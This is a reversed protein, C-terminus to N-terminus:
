TSREHMAYRLGDSITEPPKWGLMARAKAADVCLSGTLKRLDDSRGIGALM